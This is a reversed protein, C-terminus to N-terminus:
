GNNRFVLLGSYRGVEENHNFYSYAPVAYYYGNPSMFASYPTSGSGHNYGHIGATLVRRRVYRFTSRDLTVISYISDIRNRIMLRTCDDTMSLNVGRPTDGLGQMPPVGIDEIGGSHNIAAIRGTKYAAFFSKPHGKPCAVTNASFAWGSFQNNMNVQRVSSFNAGLSSREYVIVSAMRDELESTEAYVEGTARLGDESVSMALINSHILQYRVTRNQIDVYVVAGLNSGEHRCTGVFTDGFYTASKLDFSYPVTAVHQYGNGSANLMYVNTISSVVEGPKTTTHTFVKGDGSIQVNDYKVAVSAVVRKAHIDYRELYYRGDGRRLSRVYTVYKGSNDIKPNRYVYGIRTTSPDPNAQASIDLIKVPDNIWNTYKYKKGRCDGLSIGGYPKDALKRVRRDNLSFPANSARDLELNITSASIGNNRTSTM